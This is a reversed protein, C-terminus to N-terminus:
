VPLASFDAPAPAFYFVSAYVTFRIEIGVGVGLLCGQQQTPNTCVQSTVDYLNGRPFVRIQVDDGADPIFARVGTGVYYDARPHPEGRNVQLRLPSDPGDARGVKYSHGTETGNGNELYLRMGDLQNNAPYTWEVDLVVSEWADAVLTRFAYQEETVSDDEGTQSEYLLMCDGTWIPVEHACTYHGEFPVTLHYAVDSPLPMLVVDVETARGREVSINRATSAHAPATVELVRSGVPVGDLLFAGEADSVASLALGLIEARAGEIARAEDDVVRGAVSGVGAGEDASNSSGTWSPTTGPGGELGGPAGTCGAMATLLVAGLAWPSPDM